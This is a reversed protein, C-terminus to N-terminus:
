ILNWEDCSRWYINAINSHSISYRLALVSIKPKPEETHYKAIALRLALWCDGKDYQIQIPKPISSPSPLLYILFYQQEIELPHMKVAVYEYGIVYRKYLQAAKQVALIIEKRAQEHRQKEDELEPDSDQISHIPWLVPDGSMKEKSPAQNLSKQIKEQPYKTSLIVELHLPFHPVCSKGYMSHSNKANVMSENFTEAIEYFWTWSSPRYICRILESDYQDTRPGKTGTPIDEEEEMTWEDEFQGPIQAYYVIERRVRQEREEFM